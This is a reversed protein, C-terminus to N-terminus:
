GNTNQLITNGDPPSKAVADAGANDGAGPRNEIVVPQGLAESLKSGIIRALQDVAGGAAFPVIIRVPRSPYSQAQVHSGAFACAGLLLAVTLVINKLGITPMM